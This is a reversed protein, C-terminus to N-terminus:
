TFRSVAYAPNYTDAAYPAAAKGPLTYVTHTM